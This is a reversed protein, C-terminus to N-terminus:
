VLVLEKSMEEITELSLGTDEAIEENTMKGRKILKLALEQKEELIMEEMAKCMAAVGEKEEKFYRVRNALEKYYMEDPNICKFDHMLKGLSSEDIYEGNVYIIHSGDDFIKGTEQVTREIHYIPLNDGFIDREIIFIVYNEPLEESDTGAMLSNADMLSGNYRARKFGAGRDDRQIEIDYKKNKSDDAFIDLRVSRGQLNKVTHQTRVSKVNLDNKNLIIQLILETCEINDEFVKTMFDDDMLRFNKIRELVEQHKKEENKIEYTGM